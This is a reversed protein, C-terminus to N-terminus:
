LAEIADVTAAITEANAPMGSGGINAVLKAVVVARQEPTASAAQAVFKTVATEDVQGIRYDISDPIIGAAAYHRALAQQGNTM